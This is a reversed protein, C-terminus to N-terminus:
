MEAPVVKGMVMSPGTGIAPPLIAQQADTISLTTEAKGHCQPVLLVGDELLTEKTQRSGLPVMALVALLAVVVKVGGGGVGVHLSEVLVRLGLVRIGVQHLLIPLSSHTLWLMLQFVRTHKVLRFVPVDKGLVGFGTWLVDENTESYRVTPLLFCSDVEQRCKPVPVCPNPTAFM